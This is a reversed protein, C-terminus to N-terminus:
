PPSDLKLAELWEADQKMSARVFKEKIRLAQQEGTYTWTSVYVAGAVLEVGGVIVFAIVLNFLEQEVDDQLGASDVAGLLIALNNLKNL